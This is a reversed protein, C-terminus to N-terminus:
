FFVVFKFPDQVFEFQDDSLVVVTQDQAVLVFKGDKTPRVVRCYSHENVDLGEQKLVRASVCAYRSQVEDVSYEAVGFRRGSLPGGNGAFEIQAWTLHGLRSSVAVNGDVYNLWRKYGHENQVEIKHTKRDIGM